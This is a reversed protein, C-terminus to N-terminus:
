TYKEVTLVFGLGSKKFHECDRKFDEVLNSSTSSFYSSTNDLYFHAGLKGVAYSNKQQDLYILGALKGIIEEPAEAFFDIKVKDTNRTKEAYAFAILEDQKIEEIIPKRYAPPFIEGFDVNFGKFEHLDILLLYANNRHIEEWDQESIGGSNYKEKFPEYISDTRLQLIKAVDEIMEGVRNYNAIKTFLQYSISSIIDKTMDSGYIGAIYRDGLMFVKDCSRRSHAELDDSVLFVRKNAKSVYGYIATM